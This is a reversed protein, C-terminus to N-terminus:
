VPLMKNLFIVMLTGSKKAVQMPKSIFFLPFVGGDFPFHQAFVICCFDAKGM